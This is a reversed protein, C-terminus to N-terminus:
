DHARVEFGPVRLSAPSPISAAWIAVAVAILPALRVGWRFGIFSPMDGDRVNDTGIFLLWAYGVALPVLLWPLRAIRAKLRSRRIVLWGILITPWTALLFMLAGRIYWSAQSGRWFNHGPAYSTGLLPAVIEEM